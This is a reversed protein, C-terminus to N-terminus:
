MKICLVYKRHMLTSQSSLLILISVELVGRKCGQKSPYSQLEKYSFSAQRCKMMEVRWCKSEYIFHATCWLYFSFMFITTWLNSWRHMFSHGCQIKLLTSERKDYIHQSCCRAYDWPNESVSMLSETKLQHCQMGNNRNPRNFTM